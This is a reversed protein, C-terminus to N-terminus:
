LYFLVLSYFLGDLAAYFAYDLALALGFFGYIFLCPFMSGAISANLMRRLNLRFQMKRERISAIISDWAMMAAPAIASAAMVAGTMSSTMAGAAIASVAGITIAARNRWLMRGTWKIGKWVANLAKGGYTVVADFVMKGKSVSKGIVMAKHARPMVVIKGLANKLEYGFKINAAANKM